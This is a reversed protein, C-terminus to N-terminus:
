RENAVTVKGSHIAYQFLNATAEAEQQDQNGSGACQQRGSGNRMRPVCQGQTLDPVLVETYQAVAGATDGGDPYPVVAIHQEGEGVLDSVVGQAFDGAPDDGFLADVPGVVERQFVAAVAGDEEATAPQGGRSGKRAYRGILGADAAFLFFATGIDEEAEFFGSRGGAIGPM